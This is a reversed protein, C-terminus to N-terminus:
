SKFRCPKLNLKFDSSMFVTSAILVLLLSITVGGKKKYYKYLLPFCMETILSQM